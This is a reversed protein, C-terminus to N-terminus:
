MHIGTVFGNAFNAVSYLLISGFLVKIRGYKDGIVGWLIGGMLLGFMQMNLVYQTNGVMNDGDTVGLDHFSSVRVISFLVLDYIDVFYGLAAVIVLFIVSKSANQPNIISM